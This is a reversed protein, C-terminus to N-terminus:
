GSGEEEKGGQMRTQLFTMLADLGSFGRREGTHPDELSFRWATAGSSPRGQEEWCRLLYACYNPPKAPLAM